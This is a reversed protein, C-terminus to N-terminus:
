WGENQPLLNSNVVLQSQPVPWLYDRGTNFSRQEVVVHKGYDARTADFDNLIGYATGNMVQAGIKWRRIDFLRLDDLPFEVHRERRVLDRLSAQSGNTASTVAPMIGARQRVLNIADYVSQDIQNSEIKAEAYTLLVEAYRILVVDNYSNNSWDGSIDAPIYKKYYYGSFSANNKGLADISGSKTIDIVNGNLVSGPLIVTWKLRPDRNDFPKSADYLTSQEITKGDTCEYADVLGQLPVVQSGGGITPGGIWTAMASTYTNKLYQAAFIIEKSQKNTGNFLSVYDNDMSYSNLDIVAKAATAADAYNGQLLLVRAKLALAAGKTVRGYDAAAYSQPLITAIETLENVIFQAVSDQSTRAMNFESTQLVHTVLPVNGYFGILQQYGFARIFRAESKLQANQAASLAADNDINDIVDNAAAIMQYLSQWFHDFIGTGATASGNGAYQVDSPWNSWSYSDDTACSLFMRNDVDGLYRYANDVAKTADSVTKWYNGTSVSDLPQTNLDKSCSAFVYCLVIFFYFIIRKM